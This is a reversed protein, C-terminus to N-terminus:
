ELMRQQRPPADVHDRCWCISAERIYCRVDAYLKFCCFRQMPGIISCLVDVNGLFEFKVNVIFIVFHESIIGLGPLMPPSLLRPNRLVLNKASSTRAGLARAKWVICVASDGKCFDKLLRSLRCCLNTEVLCVDESSLM